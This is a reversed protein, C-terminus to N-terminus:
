AELTRLLAGRERTLDLYEDAARAHTVTDKRIAQMRTQVQALRATAGTAIAQDQAKCQALTAGTKGLAQRLEKTAQEHNLM